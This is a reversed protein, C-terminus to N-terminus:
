RLENWEDLARTIDRVLQQLGGRDTNVTIHATERYLPQRQEMLSRLRSEPDETQLLPRNKDRRTRRLQEAISTELYIVLGRERLRQRTEPDLIAGGGTALVRRDGQSLEDIMVKERRRFGEEGEIDFIVPIDVGTRRELEKDSDCFEYGLTRALQRGISSKGAGMPGILSICSFATMIQLVHTRRHRPHYRGGAPLGLTDAM